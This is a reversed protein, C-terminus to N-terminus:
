NAPAPAATAGGAPPVAPAADSKPASEPPLPRVNLDQDANVTSGPITAARPALAAPQGRRRQPDAAPHGRRIEPEGEGPDKRSQPNLAYLDAGKAVDGGWAFFGIRYNQWEDNEGHGKTKDLGGHDATVIVYTNGRLAEDASIMDLVKGILGDIKAVAAMYPSEPDLTWTTAHGATDPDRLHLMALDPAGDESKYAAILKDVLSETEEDIVYTDLKDKGNDEGVEDPAGNRDNYSLDYLSFKTKSSFLMTKLGHDHAVAFMSDIYAGKNRHLTQGIKPDTNSIWNHSLDGVVGRGTIMGTHNPLTITYVVDTRANLTYSGERMLRAFNPAREPGLKAIADPRTGDCSILM